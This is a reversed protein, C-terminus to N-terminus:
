RRKNRPVKEAFGVTGVEALIYQPKQKSLKRISVMAEKRSEHPGDIHVLSGGIRAM